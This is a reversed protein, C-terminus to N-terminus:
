AYAGGESITINRVGTLFTQDPIGNGTSPEGLTNETVNFQSRGSYAGYHADRDTYYLADSDTYELNVAVNGRGDAFNQGATASVFYSGRDGRSSIGGQARLRVGEFDRKLVFNVVGAVADSGYIASNGGTVIDVREILDTPITNTDVSSDGPSTTVHRRGNVLVLTRATGLGRLDLVNLGATGIFRTSNSQSFTSRLAPLENLQDGISLDGTDTLEQSGVSTIPVASSLNPRNIRSGTVVISDHSQAADQGSELEVENQALTEPKDAEIASDQTGQAFSPSAMGVAVGVFVASRLASSGLLGLKRM